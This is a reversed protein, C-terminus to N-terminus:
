SGLRLGTWKALSRGTPSARDANRFQARANRTSTATRTSTSVATTSRAQRRGRLSIAWPNGPWNLRASM